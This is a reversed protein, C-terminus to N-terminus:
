ILEYGQELVGPPPDVVVDGKGLIPVVLGKRRSGQHPPRRATGKKIGNLKGLGGPGQDAFGVARSIKGQMIHSM